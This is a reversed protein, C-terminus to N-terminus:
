GAQELSRNNMTRNANLPTEDPGAPLIQADWGCTGNSRIVYTGADLYVAVDGVLRGGIPISQYILKPATLVRGIRAEPRDAARTQEISLGALCGHDTASEDHASWHVHYARGVAMFPRSAGFGAGGLVIGAQPACGALALAAVIGALTARGTRPGM